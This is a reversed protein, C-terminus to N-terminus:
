KKKEKKKKKQNVSVNFSKDVVAMIEKSKQFISFPSNFQSLWEDIDPIDANASKALVWALEDFLGTDADGGNQLNRLKMFTSIFDKGFYRAYLRGTLGDAKMPIAKNEINIVKFM